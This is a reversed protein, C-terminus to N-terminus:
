HRPNEHNRVELVRKGKIDSAHQWIFWALPHSSPWLYGGFDEDVIQRVKVRLTPPSPKKRTDTPLLSAITTDEPEFVFESVRQM